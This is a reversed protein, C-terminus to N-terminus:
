DSISGQCIGSTLISPQPYLSEEGMNCAKNRDLLQGFHGNVVTGGSTKCNKIKLKLSKKKNEDVLCM